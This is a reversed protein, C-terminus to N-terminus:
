IEKVLEIYSKRFIEQWEKPMNERGMRKNFTSISEVKGIRM